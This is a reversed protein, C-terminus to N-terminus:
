VKFKEFNLHIEALCGMEEEERRREEREKCFRGPSWGLRGGKERGRKNEKDQLVHVCPLPSVRPLRQLIARDGERESEEREVGLRRRAAAWSSGWSGVQWGGWSRCRVKERIEGVSVM